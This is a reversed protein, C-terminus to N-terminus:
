IDSNNLRLWIYQGKAIKSGPQLSQQSVIGRGTIQVQLGANELLFIADRAKLGRVDPVLNKVELQKPKLEAINMKQNINAEVWKADPNDIINNLKFTKLIQKVEFRDGFFKEPLMTILKEENKNRHIDLQTAYVKDAIEKFVPAAVRNGYYAGKNPDNIVVICSYKPNDAPFYGVFSANYHIKHDNKYGHIKNAVQATGTKGAIKFLSTRINTATGREVVGELMQRLIQITSEKAILPHLVEPEFEKVIRSANRLEKVFMPKLMKGNNAVANYLTLVQLPTLALEYGHAMWPLSVRSWTKDKPDKIYPIGEGKIDLNLPQNLKLGYLKDVFKQPKKGYYTDIIKAIGINSSLEFAEQVTITGYGGEHSDEMIRDAFRMRGDGTSVKDDADVYGDDIAALLSALKFTSGPEMAEGIAYNYEEVYLGDSQRKLNAIGKIYGTNVEMLVACGHHADHEILASLLAHEVVDQLNVDLTTIVDSGNQPEIENKDNVPMWSSGAIKKMLRKGSIGALESGYAGELGVYYHGEREFGITRSALSQFPKVRRTKQEIILGGGNRGKKFLPFRQLSKLQMYSINRKILFYRSQQKRASLLSQKYQEKSRDTFLKSLMLSLSDINKYFEKDSVVDIDADFRIDFIPVSTALLRGNIDCIDGRIAEISMYKMSQTKAKERWYDGQFIQVYFVKGIIAIALILFVLYILYIRWLIDRKEKNM